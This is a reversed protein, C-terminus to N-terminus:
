ANFLIATGICAVVAGIFARMTIREKYAIATMPLITVPMLAMLTSAIGVPAMKIAVMSLWVGLSPGVVAGIGILSMAQKDKVKRLTMKLQGRFLTVLWFAAGGFIARIITATLADVANEGVM